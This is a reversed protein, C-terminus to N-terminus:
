LSYEKVDVHTLTLCIKLIDLEAPTTHYIFCERSLYSLVSEDAACHTQFM